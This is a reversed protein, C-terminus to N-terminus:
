KKGFSRGLLPTGVVRPETLNLQQMLLEYTQDKTKKGRGPSTEAQSLFLPTFSRPGPKGLTLMLGPSPRRVPLSRRKPSMALPLPIFKVTTHLSAFSKESKQKRPQSKPRRRVLVSHIYYPKFFNPSPTRPIFPLPSERLREM